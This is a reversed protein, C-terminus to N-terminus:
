KITNLDIPKAVCLHYDPAEAKTIPRDFPWGDEHKLMAIFLNLIDFFIWFGKGM